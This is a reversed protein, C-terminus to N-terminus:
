GTHREYARHERGNWELIAAGETRLRLLTRSEHWSGPNMYVGGDVNTIEPVHAHGLVVQEISPAKLLSRAHERLDAVVREDVEEEGFRRSVFRALGAGADGPILHKYIWVPFPHRLLYRIRNYVISKAAIGDGHHLYTNRGHIPVTASELILRAGFETAFYDRHWPDHNGALYWIDKGDDALRGLLGQFRSYGKPILHRYEIFYDFIDGMLVLTSVEAALSELCDVLEREKLREADPAGKGFHTDGVFLYM